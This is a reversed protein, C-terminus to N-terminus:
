PADILKPVEPTLPPLTIPPYLLPPSLLRSYTAEEILAEEREIVEPSFVVREEEERRELSMSIFALSNSNMELLSVRELVELLKLALMPILSPPPPTPPPNLLSLSDREQTFEGEM